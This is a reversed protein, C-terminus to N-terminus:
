RAALAKNARFVLPLRTANSGAAELVTDGGIEHTGREWEEWLVRVCAAQIATFNYESGFWIVSRFDRSHVARKNRALHAREDWQQQLQRRLPRAESGMARLVSLLKERSDPAVVTQSILVADRDLSILAQIAGAVCDPDSSREVVGILAPM